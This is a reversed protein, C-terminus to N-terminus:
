RKTYEALYSWVRGARRMGTWTFLGGTTSIEQFDSQYLFASFDSISSLDPTSQGAYEELSAIANFDGGVAWPHSAVGTSLDMLDSWLVQREHRTSKAYISTIFCSHLSSSHDVQLHLFQDTQGQLLVRFDHRWLVCLKHNDSLIFDPFQLYSSLHSIHEFTAMPEFLLLVSVSHLKCLKRLRRMSAKNVVGRINWFMCSIM